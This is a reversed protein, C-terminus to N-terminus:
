HTYPSGRMAPARDIYGPPPDGHLWGMLAWRGHLAEASYCEVRRVQHQQLPHFLALRGNEPDVRTGDLFELEGGQFMKPDTHMYLCFTIRRTFMFEGDHGPADDHWTFHSGHHYLTAHTEIYRLDFDDVGVTELVEPYLNTLMQHFPALGDFHKDLETLEYNFRHAGADDGGRVLKETNHHLWRGVESVFEDPMANDHQAVLAKRFRGPMSAQRELTSIAPSAGTDGKAADPSRGLSDM